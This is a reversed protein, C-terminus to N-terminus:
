SILLPPPKKETKLWTNEELLIKHVNECLVLHNKIVERPEM